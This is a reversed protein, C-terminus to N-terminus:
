PRFEVITGARLPGTLDPDQMKSATPLELLIDSWIAEASDVLRSKELQLLFSYTTFFYVDARKSKFMDTAEYDDLMLVAPANGFGLNARELFVSDASLEGLNDPYNKATLRGSERSEKASSGIFTERCIVQKTEKHVEVWEKMYVKDPTPGIGDMWSQKEIAEFLVEDPIFVTLGFSFLLDLRRVVALKILPAADM